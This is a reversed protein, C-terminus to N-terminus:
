IRFFHRGGAVVVVVVVVVGVVGVVVAIQTSQITKNQFLFCTDNMLLGLVQVLPCCQTTAVM